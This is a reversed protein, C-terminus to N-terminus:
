TSYNDLCFLIDSKLYMKAGRNWTKETKGFIKTKYGERSYSAVKQWIADWDTLFPYVFLCLFM